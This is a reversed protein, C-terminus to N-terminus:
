FVLNFKIAKLYIKFLKNKGIVAMFNFFFFILEFFLRKLLFFLFIVNENGKPCKVFKTRNSNESDSLCNANM